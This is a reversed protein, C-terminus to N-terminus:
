GSSASSRTGEGSPLETTWYEIETLVNDLDHLVEKETFRIVKIGFSELRKQRKIDYKIKFDHSQGDVEIALKLLKCYFDVIYRDIPKQRDFDFGNIQKRKLYKWLLTEAPTLNKRLERARQVLEPRYPIIEPNKRKM